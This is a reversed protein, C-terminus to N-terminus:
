RTPIAADFCYTPRTSQLSRRAFCNSDGPFVSVGALSSWAIPPAFPLFKWHM